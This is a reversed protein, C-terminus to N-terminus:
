LRLFQPMCHSVDLKPALENQAASSISFAWFKMELRNDVSCMLTHMAPIQLFLLQLYNCFNLLLTFLIQSNVYM